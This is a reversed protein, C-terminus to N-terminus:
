TDIELSVRGMTAGAELATQADGVGDFGVVRDIHVRLEGADVVEAVEQLIRTQRLQHKSDIMIQPYGINVFRVDINRWEASENTGKPWDSVVTSVLTGYAAVYQFSNAFNVHGVFDFVHDAGQKGTWQELRELVNEYRYNIILEAGLANVFAAKADSSVTTAVRAGRARALQIALHGLGGAGGHILVFDGPNINAKGYVAEWATLAAVPLGAAQVFNLSRPKLAARNGNLVKFEAYSGFNGTYGGDVYWVEDGSKLHHIASGVEEIVGVGDIGLVVVQGNERNFGGGLERMQWDAPNIGAARVRVLIDTDNRIRPRQVQRLHLVKPGGPETLALATMLDPM